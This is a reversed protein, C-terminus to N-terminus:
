YWPLKGMKELALWSEYDKKVEAQITAIQEKSLHRFRGQLKLYEEVPKLERPKINVKLVGDEIELLPWVGTQVALRAVEVTKEPPFYWGTACPQQVHIYAMGRGARTVEAARRIKRELDALYAISATAIYPIRHAAMILIMNKPKEPKGAWVRGAPSSTTSAFLPTSSSRQIGTNMYAENDYCLWIFSENREAAGSIAQLGIDVTGGDGSFSTLYIKDAKGKIRYARYLGTEYGAAAAYNALVWPVAVVGGFNVGSCSPPNVVVTNPGLVKLLHRIIISSGCGACGDSGPYIPMVEELQVPPPAAEPRHEIFEVEREPRGEYAAKLTKRGMSVFDEISIDDGGMGAIFNIVHPREDMSYLASRVDSFAGGGGTGHLVMRDVVGIAKVGEAIRRLESSPFPRLFRLKVLGIKEGMGRLRDVARRAATTMSGMTVLVADAGECRYEEILGGYRRGFVEGFEEDVSNIVRKADEMVEEFLRRYTTHLAPPLGSAPWKDSITPDVPYPAKYPPLFSDVAEQEPINVREYSYSLYFGDLSLMSPLLVRWDESIRYLQIVMDLCEQNSEALSVLWGLNLEPMMDSYDPGLAWYWGLTRNAVAMLLPTRYAPAQAVVEHMYALGQSCTATFARAGALSAGVAIGLCTHEGEAQIYEAKLQGNAIFEALYEVITTQPTIPFIPIVEARSLRVGHAVAKNGPMVDFESM